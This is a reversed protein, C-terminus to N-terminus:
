RRAVDRFSTRNYLNELEQPLPPLRELGLKGKHCCLNVSEGSFLNIGCHICIRTALSIPNYIRNTLKDVMNRWKRQRTNENIQDVSVVPADLIDVSATVSQNGQKTQRMNAANRQRRTTSEHETENLRRIRNRHRNQQRRQTTQNINEVARRAANRQCNALRRAISQDTSENSRPM